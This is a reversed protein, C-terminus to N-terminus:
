NNNNNMTNSFNVEDYEEDTENEVDLIKSMNIIAFEQKKNKM